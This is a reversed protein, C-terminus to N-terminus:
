RRRRETCVIQGDFEFSVESYAEWGSRPFIEDYVRKMDRLKLRCLQGVEAMHMARESPTLAIVHDGTYVLRLQDDFGREVARNLSLGRAMDSERTRPAISGWNFITKTSRLALSILMENNCGTSLIIQTVEESWFPDARLVEVFAILNDIDQRRSYLMYREHELKRKRGVVVDIDRQIRGLIRNCSDRSVKNKARLRNVRFQYDEDDEWSRKGIYRSNVVKLVEKPSLQEELLPALDRENYLVIKENIDAMRGDVYDDIRGNFKPGFLMKYSGTAVHARMASGAPVDFIYGNSTLYCDHGDILLRVIADHPWVEIKLDGNYLTYANAREVFINSSILHEVELLPVRHRAVNTTEIGSQKLIDEVMEVTVIFGNNSNGHIIIEVDDITVSDYHAKQAGWLYYVVYGVVGCLLAVAGYRLYKM